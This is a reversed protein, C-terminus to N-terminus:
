QNGVAFLHREGRVYMVGESLAPTAMLREGMDNKAVMEFETGARIVFIDGDESPLYIRGDAAVPSGSFGGGQHPIRQRYIERGSEVEYCDLIGNNNISYLYDGYIIPTPMYPGRGRKSWVVSGGSTEGDALSIDGTAGARVAFIPKEPRRGSAVIILDDKFVPTPATIKSSGGLRWLEKGTTPDYSKIFNSGNTILEARGAGDYITPSGWSPLEERATRWVEEGSQTDLAVIFDEAQTDCQVFVLGDFIVPSSATGWEYQPANYAGLDLVGLDKKWLLEGATTYAVVGESGFFAVVVKGDTAPSSDAQTAKIHRGSRPRGEFATRTWLVKGSKKDICILQWRHVKEKDDSTTGDGYLGHRYTAVGDPIVATSVYIREGWIVPSSHSLGPIPTKWRINQGSDGNWTLPLHQGEAVGGARHGRFSPWNADAPAETFVLSTLLSFLALTVTGQM